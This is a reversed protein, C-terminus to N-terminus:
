LSPINRCNDGGGGGLLVWSAIELFKAITYTTQYRRHLM